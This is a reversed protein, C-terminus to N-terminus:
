AWPDPISAARGRDDGGADPDDGRHPCVSAQLGLAFGGCRSGVSDIPGSPRFRQGVHPAAFRTVSPVQREQPFRRGPQRGLRGAPASGRPRRSAARGPGRQHGDGRRGASAEQAAAALGDSMMVMCFPCATAVTTPGPRSSRGRGNPTSGRGATTEEMWMRGGGAGCCFTQKGSSTWRSSPSAPRASCPGHRRWSGTTAPWTARTM